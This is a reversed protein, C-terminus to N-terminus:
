RFSSSWWQAAGIRYASALGLGSGRERQKTTFFPDFARELTEADMGSGNDRISLQCIEGVDLGFQRADQASINEISLKIHLRGNLSMADRANTVLNLVIQNIQTPDARLSCPTDTMEVSLEIEESLVSRLIPMLDQVKERLDFNQLQRAQAEGITLLRSTLSTAEEAAMVIYDRNEGEPLMEARGAVVTLLNNFDHAVGAALLGMGELREAQMGLRRNRQEREIDRAAFIWRDGDEGQNDGSLAPASYPISFTSIWVWQGDEHRVRVEFHGVEKQNKRLTEAILSYDEPHM